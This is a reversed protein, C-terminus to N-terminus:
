ERRIRTRSARQAILGVRELRSPPAEAIENERYEAKPRVISSPRDPRVISSRGGAACRPEAVPDDGFLRCQFFPTLLPAYLKIAGFGRRAPARPARGSVSTAM